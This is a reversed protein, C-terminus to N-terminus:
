SGGRPPFREELLEAAARAPSTEWGPARHLVGPARGRAREPTNLFTVRARTKPDEGVWRIFETHSGAIAYERPRPSVIPGIRPIDPNGM